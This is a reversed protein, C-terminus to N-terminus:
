TPHPSRPSPHLLQARRGIEDVEVLDEGEAEMTAEEESAAAVMGMVIEDGAGVVAEVVTDTKTHIGIEVLRGRMMMGDPTVDRLAEIVIGVVSTVDSAARIGIKVSESGITAARRTLTSRPIAVHRGRAATALPGRAVVNAIGIVGSVAIVTEATM